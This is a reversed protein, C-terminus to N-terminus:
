RGKAQRIGRCGNGHRIAPYRRCGDPLRSRPGPLRVSVHGRLHFVPLGPVALRADVHVPDQRTVDLDLGSRGADAVRWALDPSDAVTVERRQDAVHVQVAREAPGLVQERVLFQEVRAGGLHRHQRHAEARHERAVVRHGALQEARVVVLEGSGQPLEVPVGLVDDLAAVDLVGHETVDELFVGLRRPEALLDADRIGVCREVLPYPKALEEGDLDLGPPLGVRAGKAVRHGPLDGGAHHPWGRVVEVGNVGREEDLRALRFRQPLRDLPERALPM